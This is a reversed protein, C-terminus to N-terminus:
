DEKNSHAKKRRAYARVYKLTMHLKRQVYKSIVDLHKGTSKTTRVRPHVSESGGWYRSNRLDCVNLCVYMLEHANLSEIELRHSASGRSSSSSNANLDAAVSDVGEELVLELVFVVLHPLQTHKM